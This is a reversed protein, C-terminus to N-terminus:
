RGARIGFAMVHGAGPVFIEDDGVGPPSFKTFQGIPFSAVLTPAHAGSAITPLYVSLKSPGVNKDIDWVLATNSRSGATTVIPSGSGAGRILGTMGALTLKGRHQHYFFLRGQTEDPVPKPTATPVYLWGGDSPWSTMQGWVGGRAPLSEPIADGGAPCAATKRGQSFGGLATRRLVYITGTKSSTVLLSRGFISPLAVVGTSSLSLNRFHGDLQAANCPTYFDKATLTGGAGVALRVVSSGLGTPPNSGKAPVRPTYESNSNPANFGNSTSFIVRGAGDSMLGGGAMWVGAGRAGPATPTAWASQLKGTTANVGMIWGRYPSTDCHSGFGAYVAGGLELLGPRQLQYTANFAVLPDTGPITAAYTLPQGANFAAVNHLDSLRLAYILYRAQNFEPSPTTSSGPAPTDATLYIVGHGSDASTDIVPTSTVGVDPYLDPCTLTGSGIWMVPHWPPVLFRSRLVRGTRPDLEYVDGKETAVILRGGALLPQTYVQGHDPLTRDFLVGFKKSAVVAPTLRHMNTYLGTRLPGNGYTVVAGSGAPATSLLVGLVATVVTLIRSLRMERRNGAVRPGSGPSTPQDANDPAMTM